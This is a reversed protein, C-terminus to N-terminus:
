QHVNEWRIGGDTSKWVDNFYTSITGDPGFGGVVYIGANPGSSIAVLNFFNRASFQTGTVPVQNWTQGGDASKWVDNFFNTADSGGIVYIDSGVATVRHGARASFQTGTVSVQSWTQGSDASKWIEDLYNGAADGGGIVYIGAHTGSSVAASDHSVRASFQTGTVSVQSWTKGSDASKWVDNLFTTGDNGGIVYIDSGVTVTSHRTRASFLNSAGVTGTQEENWTKGSDASKWVDNFLNTVDSGGIVYIDSGIAVTRHYSRRSFQTGTVTVKNWIQGGDSSKWVDNPVVGSANSGAIVYIDSGVAASSSSMRKSFHDAVTFTYTATQGSYTAEITFKGPTGQFTLKGTNEDIKINKSAFDKPATIRYSVGDAAPKGNVLLVNTYTQDSKQTEYLMRSKSVQSDRFELKLLPTPKATPKSPPTTKPTPKSPSTKTVTPRSPNGGPSDCSALLYFAAVLFLASKARLARMVPLGRVQEHASDDPPPPPPPPPYDFSGKSSGRLHENASVGNLTRFSCNKRNM